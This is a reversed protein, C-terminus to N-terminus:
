GRGRLHIGWCPQAGAGWMGLKGPWLGWGMARPQHQGQSGQEQGPTVASCGKLFLFINIDMSGSFNSALARFSRAVPTVLGGTSVSLLKRMSSTEWSVTCFSIKHCYNWFPSHILLNEGHQSAQYQIPVSYHFLQYMIRNILISSPPSHLEYKEVHPSSLCFFM